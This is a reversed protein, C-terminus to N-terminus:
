KELLLRCVLNSQSQLESTHEESRLARERRLNGLTDQWKRLQEILRDVPKGQQKYQEAQQGLLEVAQFAIAESQDIKAVQHDRLEDTEEKPLMVVTEERVWQRATLVSVGLDDAIQQYSWSKYVRLQAARKRKRAREIVELEKDAGM